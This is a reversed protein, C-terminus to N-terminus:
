YTIQIASLKVDKILKKTLYSIGMHKTAIVYFYHKKPTILIMAGM